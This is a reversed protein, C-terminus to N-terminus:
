RHLPGFPNLEVNCFGLMALAALLSLPTYLTVTVTVPHTDPAPLVVAVTLASGTALMVGM